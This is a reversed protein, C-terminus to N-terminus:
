RIIRFARSLKTSRNGAADVAVALLRYNGRKLAKRKVRGSFRFRNAGAASSRAFGGVKVFRHCREKRRNSRKPAVCRRGVKRGSKKVLVTFATRAAESLAYRVTTGRPSAISGGSALPRFATASLRYGNIVPRTTDVAPAVPQVPTIPATAPRLSYSAASRAQSDGGASTFSGGAYLQEGFVALALGAGNLPGDGAGNSGVPHWASGDFYAVNDAVPDANANQFSGTAFVGPGSSTLGDISGSTPFWGNGGATDSGVASWALGNWRAVHDAQPIGAVDEADTGVYDDTGSAALSRVFDDVACGCLGSGSGMAHWGGSNRYAVNDAAPLGELDVFGGGAYLSGNSDATLAFVSGSFPHAPDVVTPSSAGTALDCGLLYDASAINAGNQFSGGAYLTSGIVQLALVNASFAPGSANCFPAWSVGDWVALFDADAHGGADQFSGGAYVKGNAYAIAFVAGNSIQSTPSSLASWSSGNWGAIRDADANGGADTFSGGVYLVGPPDANLAYVDGNLSQTGPSGADGLHDWGGPGAASAATPLSGVLVATLCAALVHTLRFSRLKLVLATETVRKRETSGPPLPFPRAGRASNKWWLGSPHRIGKTQKRSIPPARSSRAVEQQYPALLHQARSRNAAEV